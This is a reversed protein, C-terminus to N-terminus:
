RATVQLLQVTAPYLIMVFFAPLILLGVPLAMRVQAREAEEIL